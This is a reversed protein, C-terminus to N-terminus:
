QHALVIVKDGAEYRLAEAKGPNVVVGGMSRADATGDRQRRYGFAVEGRRRASEAITFFTVPADIAVYDSVPRMYIEAGNEDLLEDFIAALHENESAQALMLSVLKNSVVFDDTRTVDALERNRVDTMESVVGIRRGAAEAIRRLHLLTVLTRTDAPQPEMHDSYGLVIVRDYGPIDLAELSPRHSTDVLCFEVSLTDGALRLTRLEAELDPTDAAITLLSGPAVYRSLELAIMPGRRNWGLVLTREPGKDMVKLTRVAGFDFHAPDPKQIKITDDDEAIVIARMDATVISDMPPNLYVRGTPDCLGILASSEYSLMAEGFSLGTLDPQATTYIECGDFDLLESYVASLGSQRSSQVVIKSILDDALILQLESGGVARAVDANRGNRIEAAIRYPAPRRKPDNVLALITKIVSSDPDEAEPSLVIVSKSAQPNVIALDYLDTPDGSRCIVKTRGLNGVKMAIEDEMEVKDKTAMVVVRPRKQNANATALESLIDFISPSWNFIITHDEELVQRRGKRLEDLKSDVGASLVGILASVVFIGALTVALMVLRFGWGTDGGMTGSDLTRMLSAWFGETFSLPSGGEPAIQTVALFAGAVAIILVSIVALWGILAIPGAAMSKDFEYRLREAWGIQRKM